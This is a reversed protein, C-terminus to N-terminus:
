KEELVSGSNNNVLRFTKTCALPAKPTNREKISIKLIQDIIRVAIPKCIPAFKELTKDQLRTIPNLTNITKVLMKKVM